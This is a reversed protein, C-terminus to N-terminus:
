ITCRLRQKTSQIERYGGMAAEWLQRSRMDVWECHLDLRIEQAGSPVLFRILETPLTNEERETLRLNSTRASTPKGTLHVIRFYLERRYTTPVGFASDLTAVARQEGRM